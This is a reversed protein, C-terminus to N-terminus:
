GASRATINVRPIDETPPNNKFWVKIDWTGSEIKEDGNSVDEVTIYCDEFVISNWSDSGEDQFSAVIHSNERESIEDISSLQVDNMTIATLAPNDTQGERCKQRINTELDQLKGVDSNTNMVGLIGLGSNIAIGATMIAPIIFGITM